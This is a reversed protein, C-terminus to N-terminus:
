SGCLRLLLWLMDIWCCALFTRLARRRWWLLLLRRSLLLLV